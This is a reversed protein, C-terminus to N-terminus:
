GALGLEHQRIKQIEDRLKAAAEHAPDLVFWVVDGETIESAALDAVLTVLGNAATYSNGVFLVRVPPWVEGGDTTADTAAGTSAAMPTTAM